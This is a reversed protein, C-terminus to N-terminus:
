DSDSEIPRESSAWGSFGGKLVQVDTWGARMLEYAAILSRSQRGFRSPGTPELSGGVNCILIVPSSKQPAVQEMQQMFEPNLETGNLVGFFAFGARRWIQRVSWGSILQYFQVNTAGPVRAKEFDGKPRIDVVPIGRNQAPEVEQPAVFKLGNNKLTTAMKQWAKPSTPRSGDIDLGSAGRDTEAASM